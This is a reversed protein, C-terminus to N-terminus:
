DMQYWVGADWGKGKLYDAVARVGNTNKNAQGFSCSIAFSDRLKYRSIGLAEMTALRTGPLYVTVTDMNCTGDDEVTDAAKQGEAIAEKVHQALEKLQEKKM